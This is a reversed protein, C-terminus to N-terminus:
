ATEKYIAQMITNSMVHIEFLGTMNVHFRYITNRDSVDNVEGSIIPM